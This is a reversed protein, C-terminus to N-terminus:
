AIKVLNTTNLRNNTSLKLIVLYMYLAIKSIKYTLVPSYLVWTNVTGAPSGNVSLFLSALMVNEVQVLNACFIWYRFSAVYKREYFFVVMYHILACANIIQKCCWQDPLQRFKAWFRRWRQRWCPTHIVHQCHWRWRHRSRDLWARRNGRKWCIRLFLIRADVTLCTAQPNQIQAYSNLLKYFCAPICNTEYWQLRNYLMSRSLGTKLCSCEKTM